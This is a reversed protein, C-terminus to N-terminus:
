KSIFINVLKVLNNIYNISENCINKKDKINVIKNVIHFYFNIKLNIDIKLKKIKKIIELWLLIILDTRLFNMNSFFFNTYLIIKEVIKNSLNIQISMDLKNLRKSIEEIKKKETSLLNYFITYYIDFYKPDIYFVLTLGKIINYILEENLIKRYYLRELIKLLEIAKDEEILPKLFYKFKNIINM